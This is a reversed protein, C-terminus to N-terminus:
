FRGCAEHNSVLSDRKYAPFSLYFRTGKGAESEVYAYGHCLDCVHNVLSLGIGYGDSKLERIRYNLDFIQEKKSDPIGIGHDEVMIIVSDRENKVSVEIPKGEGYKIANDILNHIARQIWREKGLIETPDDEALKFSLQAYNAKYYDFAEACILAADIVNTEEDYHEGLTLVDNICDTVHDLSALYQTQHDVELRTRLTAIANKQEHSLYANLRKYDNIHNEFREQLRQYVKKLDSDPITLLDDLSNLDMIIEKMAKKHLAHLYFWLIFTAILGQLLLMAYFSTQFYSFNSQYGQYVHDFQIETTKDKATWNLITDKATEQLDFQNRMIQMSQNQYHINGIMFLIFLSAAYLIIAATQKIRKQRM